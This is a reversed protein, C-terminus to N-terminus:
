NGHLTRMDVTKVQIDPPIVFKEEPISVGEVIETATTTTKTFGDGTEKKLIIGNWTCTKEGTYQKRWVECIKGAVRETENKAAGMDILKTKTINEIENRSKDAYDEYRPNKMRLGTRTNLDITNIWQGNNELLTLTNRSITTGMLEMTTESYRAERNGWDDYYLVETGTKKGSIKYKIIGCKSKPYRKQASEVSHTNANVIFLLLLVLYFSPIKM